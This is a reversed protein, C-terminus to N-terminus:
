APAACWDDPQLTRRQGTVMITHPEGATFGRETKYSLLVGSVTYTNTDVATIRLYAKTTRYTKLTTIQSANTQVLPIEITGLGSSQFKNGDMLEIGDPEWGIKVDAKSYGLDTWTSGDSSIEVKTAPGSFIKTADAAM